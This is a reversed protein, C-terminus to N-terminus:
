VLWFDHKPGTRLGHSVESIGPPEDPPEPAATAVRVTIIPIPDSVPPEIRMGAAAHPVVPRLGVCPATLRRPAIGIVADNSVPPGSATEASSQMATWRSMAPKSM